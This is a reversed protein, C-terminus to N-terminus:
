RGCEKGGKHSISNSFILFYETYDLQVQYFTTLLPTFRRCPPCWHGSFYFLVLEKSNLVDEAKVTAGDAKVLTAGALSDMEARCSRTTSQRSSGAPHRRATIAINNCWTCGPQSVTKHQYSNHVTVM